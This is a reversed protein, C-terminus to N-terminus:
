PSEAFIDKVDKASADLAAQPTSRGLLVAQVAQGLSASIEPYQTINPRAKTVNAMNDVFVKDGPYKALYDGFKPDKAESVRVPLDGTDIDWQLHVPTSLLWKLFAEAAAVRKTGNDFVM